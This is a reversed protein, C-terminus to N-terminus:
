NNKNTISQNAEYAIVASQRATNQAKANALDATLVQQYGYSAVRSQLDTWLTNFTEEDPAFVMDWSYEVILARCQSRITSLESSEEKTIYSTGPAVLIQNHQELYDITSDAKMYSQWNADLASESLEKVSDWLSYYYPFGEPNLDTQAVPRYNLASVGDRWTGGGWEEPVEADGNLFAEVGFDTLYPAGMEDLDWTLGQIGGTAGSASCGIMIGEPSYLWDIFDALREPDQANSGIGIITKQNGEPNCGYSYISIDDMPAMMYGIGNKTNDLTNFASQSLWPWPCFLLAGSKYKNYVAEHNQTQSAPDVLGLQNADFYFKLVRLYLSSDALIDQYDSGDAKALVFGFEDYGYFCAPQKAANMMNNDWDKFFSFAYTKQDDETYPYLEQMDKLIPLLDELTGIKPYGMKEYLDWRIYPGYTLEGAESRTTPSQTSIDSPIAYIGKEPLKGNLINIAYEFRMIDKDVIYDSMDLLLGSSVMHQFKGNEGTTIILDGLNGASARMEYLTDGGGAVNPAIINLEMNFKEKVIKAFWGSQIGQFNAQSDFVDVVIFDEYSSKNTDGSSNISSVSCGSLLTVCLGLSLVKKIIPYKM